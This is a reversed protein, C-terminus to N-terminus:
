KKPANYYMSKELKANVKGKQKEDDYKKMGEDIIKQLNRTEAELQQASFSESPNKNVFKLLREMTKSDDPKVPDLRVATKLAGIKAVAEVFYIKGAELEAEIYDRNDSKVWFMHAGPKCEYRIYKPGNFKGILKTGDFYSFNILAGLASPRVFYVVAKDKPAPDITQAFIIATSFLFPIIFLIPKKLSTM